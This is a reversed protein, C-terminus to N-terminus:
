YSNENKFRLWHILIGKKKYLCGSIKVSKNFLNFTYLSVASGGALKGNSGFPSGRHNSLTQVLKPSKLLSKHYILKM